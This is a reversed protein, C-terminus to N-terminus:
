FTLDDIRKALAYDKETITNGADHTSTSITVQNYNKIAIDPHHQLEEAIEGVANVFRLAEKFNAFKWTKELAREGVKQWDQKM